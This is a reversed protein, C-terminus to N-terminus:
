IFRFCIVAVDFTAFVDNAIERAIVFHQMRKLLNILLQILVCVVFLRSCYCSCVLYPQNNDRSLLGPYTCRYELRADQKGMVIVGSDMIPNDACDTVDDIRPM